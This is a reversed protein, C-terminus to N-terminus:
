IDGAFEKVTLDADPLSTYLSHMVESINDVKETTVWFHVTLTIKKDAYSNFLINPEPKPMVFEHEMITQRIKEQTEVSRFEEHPLTMIISVRREGYYSTNTVIGGFVHSNPISVEEGTVLRLKTVRLQIDEVKGVYTVPANTISITNGIYFPREILIYFGAALDKLVDQISVTIAVTVVGIFAVPIGLSINWVSLIWIVVLLLIIIYLIRGILTRVNIDIRSEGLSRITVARITRAMGIGLAILLATQLLNWVFNTLNVVKFADNFSNSLSNFLDILAKTGWSSIILAVPAALILSPLVILVGLTQIIWNDLVTKKLRAVLKRRLLLGIGLAIVITLIILIIQVIPNGVNTTGIQPTIATFSM